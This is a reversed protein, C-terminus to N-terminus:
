VSLPTDRKKADSALAERGPKRSAACSEPATYSALGEGYPEEM